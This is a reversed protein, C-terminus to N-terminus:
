LGQHRAVAARAALVLRILQVDATLLGAFLVLDRFPALDASSVTVAALCAFGAASGLLWWLRSRVARDGCDRGVERLFLLFAGALILGLLHLFGFPSASPTKPVLSIGFAPDPPAVADYLVKAEVLLWGVAWALFLVFAAVALQSGGEGAPHFLCRFLGALVCASFSLLALGVSGGLVRPMQHEQSWFEDDNFASLEVDSLHLLAPLYQLFLVVLGIALGAAVWGLGSHVRHWAARDTWVAGSTEEVIGDQAVSGALPAPPASPV